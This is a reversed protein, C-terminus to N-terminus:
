LVKAWKLPIRILLFGAWLAVFTALSTVVGAVPFFYGVYGLVDGAVGGPGDPMLPLLAVVAVIFAGLGVIIWNISSVIAWMVFHGVAAVMCLIDQLVGIM